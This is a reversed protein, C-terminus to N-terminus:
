SMEARVLEAIRATFASTSLTGGVDRTCQQKAICDLLAKRLAACAREEGVFGLLNALALLAATPNCM